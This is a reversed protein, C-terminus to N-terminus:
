TLPPDIVLDILRILLLLHGIKLSGNYEQRLSYCSNMLNPEPRILNSNSYAKM